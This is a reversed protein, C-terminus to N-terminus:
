CQMSFLASNVYVYIYYETSISNEYSITNVNAPEVTQEFSNSLAIIKFHKFFQLLNYM